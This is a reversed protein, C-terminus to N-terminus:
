THVGIRIRIHTQMHPVYTFVYIFIYIYIYIYIYKYDFKVATLDCIIIHIYSVHYPYTIHIHIWRSYRNSVSIYRCIPCMHTYMYM